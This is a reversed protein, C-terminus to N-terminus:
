TLILNLVFLIIKKIFEIKRGTTATHVFISKGNYGFSVPVIYPTNNHAFAIRCVDSNNIIDDIEVRNAIIKDDRRM